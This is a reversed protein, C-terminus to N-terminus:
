LKIRDNSVKNMRPRLVGDRSAIVENGSSNDEEDEDGSNDCSSSDSDLGDGSALHPHRKAALRTRGFQFILVWQNNYYYHNIKFLSVSLNDFGM